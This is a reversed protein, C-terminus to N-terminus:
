EADHAEEELKIAIRGLIGNVFRPSDDGGFEKALNVAENISVSIPVEDVYCMEFAAMRLLSRDVIPMRELAWNESSSVIDRDIAEKQATVGEILRRAYNSLLQTEDVLCGEEIIKAPDTELIESQYLVQVALRRAETRDHQQKDAM